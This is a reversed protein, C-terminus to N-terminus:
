RRAQETRSSWCRMLSIRGKPDFELVAGVVYDESLYSITVGDSSPNLESLDSAPYDKLRQEWYVRLSERGTITAGSGCRCEVVADDGHMQLLAEIDSARYADLWDVAAAM